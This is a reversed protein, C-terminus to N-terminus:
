KTLLQNIIILENYIDASFYNIRCVGKYDPKKSPKDLTRKDVQAKYFNNLPINTIKSWYNELKKINQDARCQVTCRFKTEDLIYCSRLLKLFLSIIEVSSNGFTLSGKQTKSGEGLYLMALAIKAVDKNKLTNVLYKNKNELNDLYVKRKEQNVKIAVIRARYLNYIQQKKIRDQYNKPLTINKCWNSLTSKPITLNLKAKIESYTNGQQRLKIARQKIKKDM